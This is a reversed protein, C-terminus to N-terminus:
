STVSVSFDRRWSSSYYPNLSNVSGEIIVHINIVDGIEAMLKKGEVFAPEFRYNEAVAWIPAPHITNYCSIAKELESGASHTFGTIM